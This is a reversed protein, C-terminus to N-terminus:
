QMHVRLQWVQKDLAYSLEQLLNSTTEDVQSLQDIRQRIRTAVAYIRETMLALVQRDALYGAPFDGLNATKAVVGTRGDIPSGIHLAREAVRDTFNLQITAYEDLNEHLPFYLPGRLNWHSQKTSHYLELLEAVTAQLLGTVMGKKEAKDAEFPVWQDAQENRYNGLQAPAQQALATQNNEM